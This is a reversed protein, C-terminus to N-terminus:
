GRLSSSVVLGVIFFYVVYIVFVFAKLGLNLVDVM